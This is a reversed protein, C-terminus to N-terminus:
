SAKRDPDNKWVLYSYPVLIITIAIASGLILAVLLKGSVGWAGSLLYLIGIIVVLWGAMRHTRYWSLESSLTWPTRIGIFFNSKVKGLYNGMVLFLIGMLCLMITNINLDIGFGISLMLLYVALMFCPYIKLLVNYVSASKEINKKRPAIRPIYVLFASLAITIIPLLLLAEFKGGYRDPKGDMGYHVPIKSDAPLERWAWIAICLMAAIVVAIVVKSTRTVLLRGEDGECVKDVINNEMM